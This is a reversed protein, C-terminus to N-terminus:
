TGSAKFFSKYDCVSRSKLSSVKSGKMSFVNKFGVTMVNKYGFIGLAKMKFKGCLIEGMNAKKQPFYHCMKNCEFLYKLREIKVPWNVEELFFNLFIGNLIHCLKFDM